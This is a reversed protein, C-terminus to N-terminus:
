PLFTVIAVKDWNKNEVFSKDPSLAPIINGEKDFFWECFENEYGTGVANITANHFKSYDGDAIFYRLPNEIDNYIILTKM